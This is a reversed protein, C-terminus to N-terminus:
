WGREVRSETKAVLKGERRMEAVLGLASRRSSAERVECRSEEGGGFVFVVGVSSGEGKGGYGLGPVRRFAAVKEDGKM